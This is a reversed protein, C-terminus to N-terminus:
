SENQWILSAAGLIAADSESLGSPLIATKGQYINLLNAEFHRRVPEFLLDGAAALGGFLFIAEPQTYAVSNALALGLVKATQEFADLAAQEGSAARESIGRSTTNPSADPNLERYTIVVGTASAYQELCGRRGCGCPRGGPKVIVHGIEGATGDHGYVLKGGVVIGSGLGTGLTIFLFDSMGKAAGFLMEGLAAANADNTLFCPVGTAEAMWSAFPTVGEWALNPPHEISGRYFNGNPAGIGIGLLAYNEALEEIQASLDDALPRPTPYEATKLTFQDLVAGIRDVLGVNINTGGIDIGIAVIPIDVVM